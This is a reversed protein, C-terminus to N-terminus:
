KKLGAQWNLVVAIPVTRDSHASARILFREGANAVAFSHRGQTM